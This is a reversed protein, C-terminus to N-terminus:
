LLPIIQEFFEKDKTASLLESVSQKDVWLAVPNDPDMPQLKEQHTRFLFMHITKHESLDDGGSLSRRYREYVGLERVFTLDMVGSEEYIERRAATIPDEGRDVHGKPLSWSNNNQNVVVIKGHPGVVVGGACISKKMVRISFM